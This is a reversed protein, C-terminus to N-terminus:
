ISSEKRVGHFHLTLKTTGKTFSILEGDSDELRFELHNLTTNYVRCYQPTLENYIKPRYIIRHVSRRNGEIYRPPIFNSVLYLAKIHKEPLVLETLSCEYEGNLQIPPNIEIRFNSATNNPYTDSKSSLSLYFDSM